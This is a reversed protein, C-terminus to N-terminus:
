FFYRTFIQTFLGRSQCLILVSSLIIFYRTFIQTITLLLSESSWSVRQTALATTLYVIFWSISVLNVCIIPYHLIEHFDTHDGLLRLVCLILSSYFNKLIILNEAYEANESHPNIRARNWM